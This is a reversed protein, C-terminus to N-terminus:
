YMIKVDLDMLLDSYRAWLDEVDSLMLLVNHRNGKADKAYNPLVAIEKLGLARFMQAAKQQSELIRAQILELGEDMALRFLEGTLLSGLGKGRMDSAILCRIEGIHRFLGTKFRHLTANGVVREGDFALLPLVRDYDLERAWRRVVAPNTVNDMLFLLDGKPVHQFFTLLPKEDESVMPRIVVESGDRLTVTKPFTDM